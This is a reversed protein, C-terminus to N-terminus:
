PRACRLNQTSRPWGLSGATESTLRGGDFAAELALKTSTEFRMKHIACDSM